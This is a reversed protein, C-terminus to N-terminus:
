DDELFTLKRRPAPKEFGMGALLTQAEKTTPKAM